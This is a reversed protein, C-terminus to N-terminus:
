DVSKTFNISRFLNDQEVYPLIRAAASFGNADIGAPLTGNVDHYAHCGLAIQHLNNASRSRASREQFRNVAPLFLGLGVSGGALLVVLDFLTFAPRARRSM